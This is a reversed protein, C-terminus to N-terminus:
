AVGPRAVPKAAELRLDETEPRLDAVDNRHAVQLAVLFELGLMACGAPIGPSVNAIEGAGGLSVGCFAGDM